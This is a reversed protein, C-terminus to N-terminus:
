NDYQDQIHKQLRQHLRRCTVNIVRKVRLLKCMYGGFYEAPCSDIDVSIDDYKVYLTYAVNCVHALDCYSGTAGRILGNLLDIGVLGSMSMIMPTISTEIRSLKVIFAVLLLQMTFLIMDAPTFMSFVNNKNTNVSIHVDYRMLYNIHDYNDPLLIDRETGDVFLVKASKGDQRIDVHVVHHQAVEKLFVDYEWVPIDVVPPATLELTTSVGPQPGYTYTCLEYTPTSYTCIPPIADIAFSCKIRNSHVQKTKSIQGSRLRARIM